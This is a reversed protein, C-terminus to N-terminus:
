SLDEIEIDAPVYGMQRAMGLSIVMGNSLRLYTFDELFERRCLGPESHQRLRLMREIETAKGGVTNKNTQFFDCITDFTLHVSQGTLRIHNAPIFGQNAAHDLLAFNILAFWPRSHADIVDRM